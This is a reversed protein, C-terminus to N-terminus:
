GVDDEIEAAMSAVLEKMRVIQSLLRDVLPQLDEAELRNIEVELTDIETQLQDRSDELLKIRAEYRKATAEWDVDATV